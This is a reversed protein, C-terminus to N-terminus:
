QILQFLLDFIRQKSTNSGAYEVVIQDGSEVTLVGPSFVTEIQSTSDRDAHIGLAIAGVADVVGVVTPTGSINQISKIGLDGTQLTIPWITSALSGRPITATGTRGAVGNDNTYTITYTVNGAGAAITTTVLLYHIGSFQNTRYSMNPTFVNTNNNHSGFPKIVLARSFAAENQYSTFKLITATYLAPVTYSLARTYGNNVLGTTSQDFSLNVTRDLTAAGGSAGFTVAALGPYAKEFVAATVGNITAGVSVTWSVKVTTTNFLSLTVVSSGTTTIPATTKSGGVVTSEDSPDVEAITFTINGTIPGTINYVLSTEASDGARFIYSGSTTITQNNLVSDVSSM